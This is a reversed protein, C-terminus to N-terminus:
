VNATDAVPTSQPCRTCLVRSCAFCLRCTHVYACFRWQSSRFYLFICRIDLTYCMPLSTRSNITTVLPALHCSPASTALPRGPLRSLAILAGSLFFLRFFHKFFNLSIGFKFAQQLLYTPAYIRISSIGARFIAGAPQSRTRFL